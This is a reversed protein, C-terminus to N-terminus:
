EAHTSDAEYLGKVELTTLSFTFCPAPISGEAVNVTCIKSPDKKLVACIHEVHRMQQLQLHSVTLFMKQM